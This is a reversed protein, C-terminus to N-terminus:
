PGHPNDDCNILNPTEDVCRKVKLIIRDCDEEKSRDEATKEEEEEM